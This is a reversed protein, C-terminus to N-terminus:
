GHMRGEIDFLQVNETLNYYAYPLPNFVGTKGYDWYHPM